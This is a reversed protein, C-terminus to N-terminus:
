AQFLSQGAPLTNYSRDISLGNPDCLRAWRLRSEFFMEGTLAHYDGLLGAFATVHHYADIDLEWGAQRSLLLIKQFINQRSEEKLVIQMCKANTHAIGM